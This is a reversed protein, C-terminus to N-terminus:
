LGSAAVARGAFVFTTIVMLTIGLPINNSQAAAAARNTAMSM